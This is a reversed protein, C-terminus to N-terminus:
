SVEALLDGIEHPHSSAVLLPPKPPFRRVDFVVFTTGDGNQREQMGISYYNPGKRGQRIMHARWHHLDILFWRAIATESENAHGYLMWDGFGNILKEWETIAGSPRSKRVTFDWPYKDAYGPRRIRCAVRMDRARLVLFDTAEKADEIFPASDILHPGVIRRISPIFTAQWDFDKAFNPM